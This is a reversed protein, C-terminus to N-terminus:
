PRPGTKLAGAAEMRHRAQMMVALM